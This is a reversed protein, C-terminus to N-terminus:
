TLVELRLEWSIMPMGNPCNFENIISKQVQLWKSHKPDHLSKDLIRIRESGGHFNRNHSVALIIHQGATNFIKNFVDTTDFGDIDLVNSFIHVNTSDPCSQLDNQILDDLEKNILQVDVHPCYISAISKSRTLALLSPEILTIKSTKFRLSLGFKDFLLATALGQGCGYDTIRVARDNPLEMGALFTDWQEQTMRGYSYLYQDLQEISSLIARGRGLQNWLDYNRASLQKINSFNINNANIQGTRIANIITDSM